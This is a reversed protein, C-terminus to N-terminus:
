QPKSPYLVLRLGLSGTKVNGHDFERYVDSCRDKESEYSGGTTIFLPDSGSTTWEAVNGLMDYIGLSNPNKQKVPHTTNGANNRYWVSNDLNLNDAPLQNALYGVYLWQPYTPIHFNLGSVSDLKNVFELCEVLDINEVPLSDEAQHVSPNYGMIATWLEQTVESEEIYFNDLEITEKLGKCDIKGGKIGIMKVAIGNVNITTDAPALGNGDTYIRTDKFEPNLVDKLVFVGIIAACVLLIGAVIWLTIKYARKM